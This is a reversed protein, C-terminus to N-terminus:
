GRGLLIVLLESQRPRLPIRLSMHCIQHSSLHHAIDPHDFSHSTSSPSNGKLRIYGGSLPEDAIHIVSRRYYPCEARRRVSPLM